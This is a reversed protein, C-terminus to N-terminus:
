PNKQAVIYQIYMYMKIYPSIVHFSKGNDKHHADKETSAQNGQNLIRDIGFKLDRSRTIEPQLVIVSARRATQDRQRQSPPPSSSGRHSSSPSTPSCPSSSSSTPPSHPLTGPLPIVSPYLIDSIFFSPPLIKEGHQNNNAAASAAAALFSPDLSAGASYFSAALSAAGPQDTSWFMPSLGNYASVFM